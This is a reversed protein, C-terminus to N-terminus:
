CCGESLSGGQRRPRINWLVHCDGTCLCSGTQGTNRPGAFPRPHRLHLTADAWPKLERTWSVMQVFRFERPNAKAEVPKIAARLPDRKAIAEQFAPM